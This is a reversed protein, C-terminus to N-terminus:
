LVVVYYYVEKRMENYKHIESINLNRKCQYYM